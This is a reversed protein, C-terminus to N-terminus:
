YVKHYLFNFEVLIATSIKEFEILFGDHGFNSHITKLTANPLHSALHKQESPPILLDSDISIVLSKATIQSLAKETGGRNRGINHTDLSKTLSYYAQAFFRRELKLGQYQIYSAARLEDTKDDLDTQRELYSDFTRYNLLASGRAARLGKSGGFDEDNKWTHDAEIALRQAEHGAIAWATERAGCVLLVVNQILKKQLFAFELVQHGGCSGGICIEIKEIKLHKRLLDHAQAMDRITVLPFDTGYAKGTLPSISRACTSGYCSGLINACVIFYKKPDLVNGVGFLGAWWDSVDSNATLAHCVWIVNDKSANLKGFTHYGITLEPLSGGLELEFAKQVHLSQLGKIEIPTTYSM